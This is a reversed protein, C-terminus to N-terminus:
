SPCGDVSRESELIFSPDVREDVKASVELVQCKYDLRNISVSNEDFQRFRLCKSNCLTALVYAM